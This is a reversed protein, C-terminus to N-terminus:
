LFTDGLTKRQGLLYSTASMENKSAPQVTTIKLVGKGCGVTIFDKEIALIEGLTHEQDSNILELDKLKLGSELYVGPWPHFAAFKRKLSVADCFDVLGESKHHKKVKSAMCNHQKLRNINNFSGLVEKGLNAAVYGLKDLFCGYKAQSPVEMYSYGVIDGTDLGEDMIIATIGAYKDGNLLTEQLPSAGRYAPLLSTHLNICPAIELIEKSLIQGFAAVVIVDCQLSKIVVVDDSSLKEPQFLPLNKSSAYSAVPPPTLQQKRGVPRDPQTVVGVCNFREDECLSELIIKAFDPTGMFVFRIM